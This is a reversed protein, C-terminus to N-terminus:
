YFNLFRLYDHGLEKEQAMLMIGIGCIGESFSLHTYDHQANYNSHYGAWASKKNDKNLTIDKWYNVAEQLKSDELKTNVKSFLACLGSSGYFLSADKTYKENNDRFKAANQLIDSGIALLDDNQLLTGANLFTYGIGIDGYALDQYNLKEKENAELRFWNVGKKENFEYLFNLGRLILSKLNNYAINKSYAQLLFNVIGAVGHTVGLEVIPEQPDKLISEWYVFSEVTITQEEISSLLAILESNVDIFELRNLLYYGAKIAGLMPDLNKKNTEELLFDKIITDSDVLLENIDEKDIVGQQYLFFLYDGLDIINNIINTGKYHDGIGEISKELYTIVDNLYVDDNTFLYYYYHYLSLGLLGDMIGMNIFKSDNKILAERILDPKTNIHKTIVKM